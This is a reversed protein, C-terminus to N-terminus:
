YRHAGHAGLSMIYQVFVQLDDDIERSKDQNVQVRIRSFESRSFDVMASYRTPNHGTQEFGAEGLVGVDSGQNDSDLWDYRLGARWQSMFQYIGQLYFGSLESNVTTQEPPTEAIDIDGDRKLVFYEAQLKVHRDKPNGNKAWKYVADVGYLTVDGTFETDVAAGGGHGHGGLEVTNNDATLVSAGLQWSQSRGIDGGTTAFATWSAKGDNGSGAPYADGRLWEAGLQLYFLTPALWTLQAGTDIIHRGFLGRYVLPQDVFDWAHAHVNNLYGIESFFKGAQLSFGSPLKLTRFFAEEIETELEGEEQHLALTFKGYFWDDINASATLETEFLTFGEDHLGGEGGLPVGATEYSEPDQEYEVLGGNLILSIAPNFETGSIRNTAAQSPVTTAALTAAISIVLPRFFM